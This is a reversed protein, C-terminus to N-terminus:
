VKATIIRYHGEEVEDVVAKLGMDELGEVLPQGRKPLHIEFVMGDPSQKIYELIEFRPHEGNKIRERVDIVARDGDLLVDLMIEVGENIFTYYDSQNITM